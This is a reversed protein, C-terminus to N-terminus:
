EEVTDHRRGLESDPILDRPELIMRIVIVFLAVLLLNRVMLIMIGLLSFPDGAARFAYNVILNIQTLAVSTGFLWLTRRRWEPRLQMSMVAVFPIIWVLYQSSLVKNVLMFVMVVAFCAATFRLYYDSDRDRVKHWYLAYTAILMIAMLYLMVGAIADPVAGYINDSGYNFVYGVDILGLYGFLMLFSSVLSETQMGRDMHYTLFMLMTDPDAILFPLMCLCGIILCIVVGRLAERKRGNMCLYILLVPAMLAPYLKTVTGLAIMVWAHDIKGIRVFYLAALCMIMPFIDYRDLIFDLLCVCLIIYLDSFRKPNDTYTGAIRHVCVLGILLFVYVELGFAIQYTFSSFSFLRPILLLLMAFPPYEAAFDSYPMQGDVMAEAYRFYLTGVESPIGSLRFATYFIVAAIVFIITFKRIESRLDEDMGNLPRVCM